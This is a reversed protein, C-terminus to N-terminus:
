RVQRSNLIIQNFFLLTDLIHEGWYKWNHGGNFEKYLHPISYGQLQEHLKRNEQLLNDSLGCDFRFQPLDTRCSLLIDILSEDIAKEQRLSSLNEETFQDMQNLHTLSSLGSIGRFKNNYRAGIRLAGFGGMSLGSIFLDSKDNVQPIMEFVADVVNEAIWKEYNASKHPVYGSGDGWLGDSPMVLIMPTLKGEEVWRNMKLHIGTRNAWSWHSGYVGHLLIVMPLQAQNEGPPVYVSIDGRGGLNESKVIIYRLNGLEYRPDSIEITKFKSM